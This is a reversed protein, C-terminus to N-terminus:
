KWTQCKVESSEKVLSDSLVTYVNINSIMRFSANWVIKLIFLKHLNIPLPNGYFSSKWNQPAM